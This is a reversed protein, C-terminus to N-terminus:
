FRFAAQLVIGQDWFQGLSPPAFPGGNNQSVRNLDWFVEYQYGIFFRMGSAPAPQWALGLRGNIMPMGQHGFARTEGFLPRGTAGLTTSATQWDNTVWDFTGAADIRSSLSWGSDGLHRALELVVHPGLGFLNNSERAQVIGTGASAQGFPQNAQSDFFLFISRLGVSWNMDWRPGLSLESSRYDFDIMDFAFRSNLGVSGGTDPVSGSGDTGLHRYAVLFEGFGAPLRYGLFVRPSATWDLPASSLAVTTAKSGLPGSNPYNNVFRGPLVSNRMQPLLHPKVIQVEAGAFWGPPPLGAPDLLPDQVFYPADVRLLRSSAPAPPAFLSAPLDGLRPLVRLVGGGVGEDPGDPLSLLSPVSEQGLSVDALEKLEAAARSAPDAPTEQAHGSASLFLGMVSALFLPTIKTM